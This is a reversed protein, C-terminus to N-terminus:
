YLWIKEEEKSMRFDDGLYVTMITINLKKTEKHIKNICFAINLPNSRDRSCDIIVAADDKSKREKLKGDDVLKQIDPYAQKLTRIIQYTEIRKGGNITMHRDQRQKGHDGIFLDFQEDKDPRGKFIRINAELITEDEIYIREFNESLQKYEIYQIFNTM